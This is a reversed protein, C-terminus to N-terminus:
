ILRKLNKNMDKELVIVYIRRSSNSCSVGTGSQSNSLMDDILIEKRGTEQAEM